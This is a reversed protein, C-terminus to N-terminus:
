GIGNHDIRLRTLWMERRPLISLGRTDLGTSPCRVGPEYTLEVPDDEIIVWGKGVRARHCEVEVPLIRGIDPPAHVHIRDPEALKVPLHDVPQLTLAADQHHAIVHRLIRAALM